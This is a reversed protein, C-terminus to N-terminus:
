GLVTSFATAGTPTPLQVKAGWAKFVAIESLRGTKNVLILSGGVPLHPAKASVLLAASGSTGKPLNSPRGVLPIVKQHGITQTKATRIGNQPAFQNLTAGLTLDQALLQFPADSPQIEIWKGAYPAAQQASIQLASQLASASGVVYILGGILDIELPQGGQLTEGATPASVVGDLTQTSKNETTKVVFQMSGSAQAANLADSLLQAGPTPQSGSAATVSPVSLGALVLLFSAATLGLFRRVAHVSCVSSRTSVAPIM